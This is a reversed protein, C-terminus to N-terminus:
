NNSRDPLMVEVKKGTKDKMTGSKDISMGEEMTTKTGDKHIVQGNTMVQDGNDLIVTQTMPVLQGDKVTMMTGNKMLVGRDSPAAAMLVGRDSSESMMMPTAEVPAPPPPPPAVELMKTKCSALVFLVAVLFITKKM